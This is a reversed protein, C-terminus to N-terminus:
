SCYLNNVKCLQANRNAQAAQIGAATSQMANAAVNVAVAGVAIYLLLAKM